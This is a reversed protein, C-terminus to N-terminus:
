QAVVGQKRLKLYYPNYTRATGGGRRPRPPLPATGAGHPPAGALGPGSCAAISATNPAGKRHAGGIGM